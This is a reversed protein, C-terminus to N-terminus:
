CLPAPPTFRIASPETNRISFAAVLPRGASWGPLVEAFLWFCFSAAVFLLM